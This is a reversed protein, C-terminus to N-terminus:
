PTAASPRLCSHTLCQAQGGGPEMTGVAVMNARDRQGSPDCDMWALCLPFAPLLLDHHVYINGEGDAGPVHLRSATM